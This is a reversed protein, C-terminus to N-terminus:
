ITIGRVKEIVRKHGFQDVVVVRKIQASKLLRKIKRSM